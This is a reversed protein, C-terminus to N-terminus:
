FHAELALMPASTDKGIGSAIGFKNRWYEYGAGAYFTDKKGALSGVDFLLYARAVTEAATEMGFGDKGKKGIYNINGDFKAGVRSITVSWAASVGYTNDFRVSKGTIGNHNRETRYLLSLEFFGPVDFNVTPGFVTRQVRPGFNDNKSNLDLGASIGIDKIIGVRMDTGFAANLSVKHRYVAYIEQAGGGGNLAPDQDESILFDATFFNTGYKYGSIHTFSLIDKRIKNTNEPETFRNGVRYGAFTDSWDAAYIPATTAVGVLLGIVCIPMTRRLSSPDLRTPSARHAFGARSPPTACDRNGDPPEEAAGLLRCANRWAVREWTAPEIDLARYKALEVAPHQIPYESGFLVRDTGLRALAHQVVRTYGGSTELSINPAPAILEIGYLDIHGIGGHGLVFAASPFRQALTVLDAVCFGARALCHLYVPHGATVAVEVLAATRGDSLAVGHVAPALELGSFESVRQRYHDANRHPNAFFFPVLRGAARACADLVFDNDADIDACGGEVIQRSLRELPITGGAAVAAREIGVEDMMLLLRELSTTDPVLRAHFDFVRQGHDWQRSAQM